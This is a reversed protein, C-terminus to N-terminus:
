VMKTYGFTVAASNQYFKSRVDGLADCLRQKDVEQIDAVFCVNQWPSDFSAGGDFHVQGCHRGVVSRTERIFDSWQKQTLKNDSNGIQITVTQMYEM